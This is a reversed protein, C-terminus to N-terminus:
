KKVFKLNTGNAAQIFYIGATLKTVDMTNSGQSLEQTLVNKGTIDVVVVSLQEAVQIFLQNSVPNPYVRWSTSSLNQVSLVEIYQCVSTDSCTGKSIVVSYDGTTTPTFSKGNENAVVTNTNCDIWTYTANNENSTLTKGNITVTKNISTLTLNLTITSDCGNKSGGTFTHTATTNNTTYTQGDIWVFSEGCIQQVDTSTVAGNCVREYAGLEITGGTIRPNGALDTTTTNLSNLGKNIANAEVKLSFDANNPDNFMADLTIGTADINGNGSIVNGQILSHYSAYLGSGFISDFIISNNFYVSDAAIFVANPLNNVITVNTCTPIGNQNYIAGGSNVCSNGSFEVNTYSPSSTRNFVGGGFKSRNNTIKTNTIVASSAADNYIAGGDSNAKNHAFVVNNLIPSSNRNFMGGGYNAINKTFIVNTLVPSSLNFNYIGAGDTAFNDRIILNTLTPSAYSNFIGGGPATNRLGNRITFGDLVASSDMATTSTLNHFLVPRTNAGDLISGTVGSSDMIIRNDTLSVISNEPDFGGYVAVNNKLVFSSSGVTYTGVAVFVKQTGLANIAGQLNSTADSWSTGNGSGSSVSKVYVIGNADPTQSFVDSFVSLFCMALITKKFSITNNKIM